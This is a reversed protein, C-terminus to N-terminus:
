RGHAENEAADALAARISAALHQPRHALDTWTVHVIRWGLLTLANRRERDREWKKRGSHWRYGDAEVAVLLDPWAFDPRAILRGSSRVEHQRIPDPLCSRRLLRLLRTEFVSEPVSGGERSLLIERLVRAGRRRRWAEEQNLHRRLRAISVLGRRLADDFAEEVRDRPAVAALDLLTRAPTTVRFGDLTTVELATLRAHHVVGQVRVRRRQPVTLEIPGQEFAALCWLPAAALHSVTAGAGYALFSAM